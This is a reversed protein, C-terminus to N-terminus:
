TEREQELMFWLDWISRCSTSLHYTGTSEPRRHVSINYQLLQTISLTAQSAGDCEQSKINTCNLIMAVLASLSHPVSNTQCNLDFPGSFSAQWKLMYKQVINAARALCIAEDDHNQDLSM